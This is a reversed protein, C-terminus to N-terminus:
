ANLEFQRINRPLSNLRDVNEGDKKLIFVGTATRRLHMYSELGNFAYLSQLMKYERVGGPNIAFWNAAVAIL